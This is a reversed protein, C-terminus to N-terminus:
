KGRKGLTTTLSKILTTGRKIADGFADYDGRELADM